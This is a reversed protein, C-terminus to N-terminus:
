SISKIFEAYTLNPNAQVAIKFKNFLEIDKNSESIIKEKKSRINNLQAKLLEAGRSTAAVKGKVSNVLEDQVMVQLETSIALYTEDKALLAQQDSNLSAVERDIEEWLTTPVSQNPIVQGYQQKLNNLAAIERDIQSMMEFSQQPSSLLPDQSGFNIQYQPNIM